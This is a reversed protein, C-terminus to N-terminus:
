ASGPARRLSTKRLQAAIGQRAAKEPAILGLKQLIRGNEVTVRAGCGRCTVEWGVQLPSKEGFPPNRLTTGCAPCAGCVGRPSDNFTTIM